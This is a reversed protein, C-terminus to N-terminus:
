LHHLEVYIAAQVTKWEEQLQRRTIGHYRELEQHFRRTQRLLDEYTAVASDPTENM